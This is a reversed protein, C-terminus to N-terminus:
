ILAQSNRGLENQKRSFNQFAPPLNVRKSHQNTDFSYPVQLQTNAATCYVLNLRLQSSLLCVQTFISYNPTSEILSLTTMFVALIFSVYIRLFNIHIHIEMRM